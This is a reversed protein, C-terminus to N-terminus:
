PERAPGTRSMVGRRSFSPVSTVPPLLVPPSKLALSEPKALPLMLIQQSDLLYARILIALCCGSQEFNWTTFLGSTRTPISCIRQLCSGCEQEYACRSHNNAKNTEQRLGQEIVDCKTERWTYVESM